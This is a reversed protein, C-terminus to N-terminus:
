GPLGALAVASCVEGDQLCQGVITLFLGDDFAAAVIELEGGPHIPKKYRAGLIHTMAVQTIREGSELLKLIIGAQGVAEVHLVGPYMPRSPFHGAFIERARSLDYRAVILGADRDIHTVRDILLFPDRHPLLGEVAARDHLTTQPRDELLPGKEARRFLAAAEEPLENM